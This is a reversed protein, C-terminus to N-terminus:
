YESLLRAKILLVSTFNSLGTHRDICQERLLKRRTNVALRLKKNLGTENLLHEIFNRKREIKKKYLNAFSEVEVVM